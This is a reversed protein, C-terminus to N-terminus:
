LRIDNFISQFKASVAQSDFDPALQTQLLLVRDTMKEQDWQHYLDILSRIVVDRDERVYFDGSREGFHTSIGKELNQPTVLGLWFGSFALVPRNSLMAEIAATAGACVVNAKEIWPQPDTQTGLIRVFREGARINAKLASLRFGWRRRGGGVIDIQLSPISKKLELAKEVIIRLGPSKWRSLRSLCLVQFPDRPPLVTPHAMGSIPRQIWHIPLDTKIARLEEYIPKEPSIWTDSGEIIADISRKGTRDLQPPDHFVTILKAGTEHQIRQAFPFARRSDTIIIDPSFDVARNILRTSGVTFSLEQIVRVGAKKSRKQFGKFGAWRGIIAVNNGAQSLATALYLNYSAVGDVIFGESCFLINKQNNTLM